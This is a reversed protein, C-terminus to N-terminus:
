WPKRMSRAGTLFHSRAPLVPLPRFLRPRPSKAVEAQFTPLAFPLAEIVGDRLTLRLPEQASAPTITAFALMIAVFLTLFRTMMDGISVPNGAVEVPLKETRPDSRFIPTPIPAYKM